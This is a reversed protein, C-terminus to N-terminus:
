ALDGAVLPVFRVTEIVESSFQDGTRVIKLLQQDEEGVPIM